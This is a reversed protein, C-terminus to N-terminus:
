PTNILDYVVNNFIVNQAWNEIYYQTFGGSGYQTNVLAKGYAVVIDSTVVYEAIKYNPYDRSLQTGNYITNYDFNANIVDNGTTYWAGQYLHSSDQCVRYIKTGAKLLTPQFSDANYQIKSM